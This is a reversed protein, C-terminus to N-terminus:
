LPPPDPPADERGAPAVVDVSQWHTPLLATGFRAPAPLTPSLSSGSSGSGSGVDSGLSVGPPPAQSSAMEAAIQEHTMLRGNFVHLHSFLPHLLDFQHLGAGTGVPTTSALLLMLVFAILYGPLRMTQTTPTHALSKNPHM